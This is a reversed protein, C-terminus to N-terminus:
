YAPKRNPLMPLQIDLFSGNKGFRFRVREVPGVDRVKWESTEIPQDPVDSPSWEVNEGHPKVKEPDVEYVEQEKVDVLMYRKWLRVLLVGRKEGHYINWSAPADDNFRVIAFQVPKWVAKETAPQASAWGSAIFLILAIKAFRGHMLSRDRDRDVLTDHLSLAWVSAVEVNREWVPKGSFRGAGGPIRVECVM